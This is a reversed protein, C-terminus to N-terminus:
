SKRGSKSSKASQSPTAAARPAVEAERLTEASVAGGENDSKVQPDAGLLQQEAELWIQEDRGSPQGYSEWLRRACASIDDHLPRQRLDPTQGSPTEGPAGRRENESPRGTMHDPNKM